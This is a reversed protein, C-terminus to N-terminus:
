CNTSKRSDQSIQIALERTPCLIIAQLTKSDAKIKQLIPLMFAATKGTGTQALATLDQESGLVFPIAEAQIPSPEVFGLDEISKMIEANLGLEKFTKM